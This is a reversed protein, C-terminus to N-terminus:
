KKDLTLLGIFAIARSVVGFMVVIVNCLTWWHVNYGLRYLAGCRTLLWVGYYRKANAVVFAELAWKPYCLKAIFKLNENSFAQTALLTLCVPLLVSCLQAPGPNLFIAFAYGMGTVCYVLCVLVIYNDLLSSRPNTFFYFMSLYIVPKILTNFHDSTDKAMFYALRSMGSASERRYQLKDMSFSRLAAIQCLLSIAIITYSYGSAGFNSDSISTISGLCAGAILLIIYDTAHLRAERLRQKGIRGLFFKYQLVTSPTRRGSLDNWKFFNHYLHDRRLEVNFRMDQWLEGAFTQEEGADSGVTASMALVAANSQMDKPVTYGNEVMWILPLEKYNFGTIPEVLGELIDIYYDPPNIREPVYIGLDGFYKEVNRVPGHYVMLGGKALLILDDFMQFLAYSPQHVVMCINVGAQAEHRLAQLLLRSSSSDLGSTPEDLFLLSPEMVMELGVNVRKRQGGSIGRKEVTGVLSDRVEHLGLNGIVREVILVRDAKRLDASLRCRASFWLNEEVTLDGHVIDDQPVFGIIKRYSHISEPDGNLLILGGRTCGTAKGALASLFTTKGAGSPGMVAAIHGPTIKGTLSKLLCKRKGKLTLTLDKFTVEILPRQRIECTAAMSIVRSFTLNENKAERSKEKEIQAYAYQFIQSDTERPKPRKRRSNKDEIELPPGEHGLSVDKLEHVKATPNNSERSRKEPETYSVQSGGSESPYVLPPLTNNDVEPDVEDELMRHQDQDRKRSFKRSLSKQLGNVHKRAADKAAKWRIRANESQQVRRAARDRSKARRRERISLIQDSCSYILLLLAILAVILMIGYAHMNQNGTNPKCSTLKSCRIQSTSGRRCYHGRRCPERDITTPCYDGAPCFIEESTGVDAWINAGGCTHNPHGVPLQYQYPECLGTKNNPRALPCYAGLPCPMMCTLGQPCFFGECCAQCDSTRSPISTSNELDVPVLPDVGCAWGPECGSLWTTLNCNKNPMLSSAGGSSAQIFVNDLYFKIEAATCIRRPADGQSGLCNALFELNTTYNFAMNWDTTPNAICFSAQTQMEEIFTSTLGGFVTSYLLEAAASADGTQCRVREVLILTLSVLILLLVSIRPRRRRSSM